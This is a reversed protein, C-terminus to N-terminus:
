LNRSFIENQIRELFYSYTFKGALNYNLLTMSKYELDSIGFSIMIAEKIGAISIPDILIGNSNNEIYQDICSVASVLPVCGFNMGESIVKPFGESKSALIIFHSDKYIDFLQERNLYGHFKIEFPLQM